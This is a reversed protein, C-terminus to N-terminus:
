RGHKMKVCPYSPGGILLDLRQLDNPWNAIHMAGFGEDEIISRQYEWFLRGILSDNDSHAPAIPTFIFTLTEQFGSGSRRVPPCSRKPVATFTQYSAEPSRWSVAPGEVEISPPHDSPNARGFIQKDRTFLRSMKKPVKIDSSESLPRRTVSKLPIRM